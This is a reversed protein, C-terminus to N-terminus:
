DVIAHRAKVAEIVRLVHRRQDGVIRVDIANKRM